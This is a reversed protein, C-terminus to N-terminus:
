RLSSWQLNLTQAVERMNEVRVSVLILDPDLRSLSFHEPLYAQVPGWAQIQGTASRLRYYHTQNIAQVLGPNKEVFSVEDGAQLFIKGLLTRGVAGAGFVLIRKM